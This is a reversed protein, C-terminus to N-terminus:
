LRTSQRDLLVVGNITLPHLASSHCPLVRPYGCTIGSKFIADKIRRVLLLEEEDVVAQVRNEPHDQARRRRLDDLAYQFVIPVAEPLNGATFGVAAVIYWPNPHSESDVPYLSKLGDLLDPTAIDSAVVLAM